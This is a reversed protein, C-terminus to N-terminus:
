ARAVRRYLSEIARDLAPATVTDLFRLASARSQEGITAKAGAIYRRAIILSALCGFLAFLVPVVLAM